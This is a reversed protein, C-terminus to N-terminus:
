ETMMTMTMTTIITAINTITTVMTVIIAIGSDLHGGPAMTLGPARWPGAVAAAM